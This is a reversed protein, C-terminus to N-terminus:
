RTSADAEGGVNASQRRARRPSGSITDVLVLAVWVGSGIALVAAVIVVILVIM